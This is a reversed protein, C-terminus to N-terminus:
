TRRGQQRQTMHWTWVQKKKEGSQGEQTAAHQNAGTESSSM